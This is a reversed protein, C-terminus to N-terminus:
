QLREAFFVDRCSDATVSAKRQRIGGLRKAFAKGLTRYFSGKGHM